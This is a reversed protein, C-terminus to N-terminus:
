TVSEVFHKPIRIELVGAKYRTTISHLLGQIPVVFVWFFGHKYYPTEKKALVTLERKQENVRIGIDNQAVGLLNLVISYSSRSELLAHPPNIPNSRVTQCNLLAPAPQNSNQDASPTAYHM